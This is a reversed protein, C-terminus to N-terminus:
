SKKRRSVNSHKKTGANTNARGPTIGSLRALKDCISQRARTLEERIIQRIVAADTISSLQSALRGPVGNLGQSFTAAMENFVLQVDETPLYKGERLDNDFKKARLSEEKLQINAKGMEGRTEEDQGSKLFEIYALRCESPNYKGNISKPVIGEEALQYLRRVKLGLHTAMQTPPLDQEIVKKAAM